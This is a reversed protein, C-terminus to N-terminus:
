FGNLGSYLHVRINIYSYLTRPLFPGINYLLFNSFLLTRMRPERVVALVHKYCTKNKNIRGLRGKQM